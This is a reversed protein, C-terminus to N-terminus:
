QPVQGPELEDSLRRTAPVTRVTGDLALVVLDGDPAQDIARTLADAGVADGSTRWLQLDLGPRSALKGAAAPTVNGVVLVSRGAASRRTVMPGTDTGGTATPGKASDPTPTRLLDHRDTRFVTWHFGAILSTALLVGLAYRVRAVTQAGVGDGLADQLVLYVLTILAIVAAIGAVGFLLVLYTRRTISTIEPAPEAARARQIRRWHWWWVPGGALLLVIAALLTNVASTGAGADDAGVASEVATVLVMVVGAAAAVLGIAAMLYEYVRRVETREVASRSALVAQHYWWVLLGVAGTGILEPADAFQTAAPDRDGVLWVLVEYGLTSLMTIAGVLGGGVGALLVYALWGNTRPGHRAERLWYVAWVTAGVAFTAAARLLPDVPSAVISVGGAGSYGRVTAGLLEALGDAATVLGALTGALVLLRLHPAPATRRGWRRHVFWVATWVLAMAWADGSHPAASTLASLARYWGVMASILAVLGVVTLYAAWEVSRHEAPDLAARSRSWWALALWLPLAILVFSLQLALETADAAPAADLELLRGLLGTAGTAATILLGALVLYQFFRRVSQSGGPLQRDHAATGHRRPARVALTVGAALLLVLVVVAIVAGM